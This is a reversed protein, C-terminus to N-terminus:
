GRAATLVIVKEAKAQSILTKACENATSGTTFVDDVLLITRGECKKASKTIQFAKDLNTQRQNRNLRVQTSTDRTRKLAPIIPLPCHKAFEQALEMAQNYGRKHLRKRSLPVPVILPSCKLIIQMEPLNLPEQMLLALDKALYLRGEYKLGHILDRGLDLALIPARAFHFAFENKQCTGCVVATEIAGNLPEGCCNCYPHKIRSLTSQCSTCLHVSTDSMYDCSPCIRPFILDSIRRIFTNIM